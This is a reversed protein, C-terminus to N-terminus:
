RARINSGPDLGGTQDFFDTPWGLDEAVQPGTAASTPNLVVVVDFESGPANVPIDLHLVGDEGAKGHTRHTQMTAAGRPSNSSQASTSFVKEAADADWHITTDAPLEM